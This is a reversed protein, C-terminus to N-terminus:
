KNNLLLLLSTFTVVHFSYSLSVCKCKVTCFIVSTFSIKKAEKKRKLSGRGGALFFLYGLIKSWNKPPIVCGSYKKVKM